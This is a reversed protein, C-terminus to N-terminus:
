TVFLDILASEDACSLLELGLAEGEPSLDASEDPGAAVIKAADDDSLKAAVENVCSEDLEIGGAAAQDIASQAAAAQEDTLGAAGAITTPDASSDGDSGCAALGLVIAASIVITRKM